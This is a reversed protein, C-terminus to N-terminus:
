PIFYFHFLPVIIKTVFRFFRKNCQNHYIKLNEPPKNWDNYWDLFLLSFSMVLLFFLIYVRLGANRQIAQRLQENAERVNETTGVVANSIREIDDKQLAVKETFLQQLKAVDFVHKEIQQVEESLGQFESLMQKNEIELLQMEDATLNHGELEQQRSSLADDEMSQNYDDFSKRPSDSQVKLKDVKKQSDDIFDESDNEGLKEKLDMDDKIHVFDNQEKRKDSDLKLFKYTELDRRIRYNKQDNFINYVSKLYETLLEFVGDAHQRYQKSCERSNFDMKLECIFNTCIDIIKESESDILDREANTM